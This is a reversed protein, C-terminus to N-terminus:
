CHVEKSALLELRYFTGIIRCKRSWLLRSPVDKESTNRQMTEAFLEM